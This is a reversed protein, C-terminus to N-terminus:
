RLAPGEADDKKGSFGVQVLAAGTVVDVASLQQQDREDLLEGDPGLGPRVLGAADQRGAGRGETGAPRKEKSETRGSQWGARTSDAAEPDSLPVQSLLAPESGPRM